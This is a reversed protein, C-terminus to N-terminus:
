LIKKSKTLFCKRFLEIIKRVEVIENNNHKSMEFLYYLGSSLFISIELNENSSYPSQEKHTINVSLIDERKIYTDSIIVEEKSLEIENSSWIGSVVKEKNLIARFEGRISM